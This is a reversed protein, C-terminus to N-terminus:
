DDKPEPLKRYLAIVIAGVGIDAAGRIWFNSNDYNKIIGPLIESLLGFFFITFLGVWFASFVDVLIKLPKNKM